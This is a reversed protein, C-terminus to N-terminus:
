LTEPTFELTERTYPKLKLSTVSVNPEERQVPCQSEEAGLTVCESTNWM